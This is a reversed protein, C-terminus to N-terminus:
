QIFFKLSSVFSDHYEMSGELYSTSLVYIRNSWKILRYKSLSGAESMIFNVYVIDGVQYTNYEICTGSASYEKFIKEFTKGVKKEDLFAYIMFYYTAGGDSWSTLKFSRGGMFDDTDVLRIKPFKFTMAQPFAKQVVIPSYLRSFSIEQWDAFQQAKGKSELLPSDQAVLPEKTQQYIVTNGDEDVDQAIAGNALLMLLGMLLNAIARRNFCYLNM